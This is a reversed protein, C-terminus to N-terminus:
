YNIQAQLRIMNGSQDYNPNTSDSTKRNSIGYAATLELSPIPQWETGVEWENMDYSKADKENKRGGKYKQYRVYPFFREDKHTFAYNVQAYGGELKQSRVKNQTADYEPGSGQNYEAQFGFPQPYYIFSAGSRQDYYNKGALGFQGEYAQISAEIFQGNNLKFPYTLRVVRHLDNNQEPKNLSQGNYGGITFMGYDGTGKLQANALEKFRARIEVPAYMLYVGTDRENPAATNMAETRDFAARISSSQMNEFGFPVKSIGTRIRFEKNSTLAYDFYADRISLFNDNMGTNDTNTGSVATAFDPQIYFFIKNNLEGSFVLRARRMFIGQKDGISKDGGTNKLKSNTEAFRNYRFQTYGRISMKEYWKNALIQDIKAGISDQAFAGSVSTGVIVTILSTRLLKM